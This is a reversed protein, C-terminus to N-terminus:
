LAPAWAARAAGGGAGLTGNSGAVQQHLAETWNDVVNLAAFIKALDRAWGTDAADVPYGWDKAFQQAVSGSPGVELVVGCTRPGASNVVYGGYDQLARALMRGPETELWTPDQVDVTPPLALLAGMKLAPVQGKYETQWGSDAKVAPWRYGPSAGSLYDPSLTLKLAHRIRGGPALEGLRLTGGVSSLGSGGHAGEIGWGQLDGDPYEVMTTADGGAVCRAFPQNQKVTRGDALLLAASNSPINGPSAGPVIFDTPIPASFLVAGDTACRSQGTWGDANYHVDTLPATASLVLIAPEANFSEMDNIGAPVFTAGAGMPLNWISGSVFPQELITRSWGGDADPGRDAGGDLAGDPGPTEVRTPSVM